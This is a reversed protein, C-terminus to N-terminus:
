KHKKMVSLIYSFVVFINMLLCFNFLLQNSLRETLLQKVTISDTSKFAAILLIIVSIAFILASQVFLDKHDNKTLYTIIFTNVGILFSVSLVGGNVQQIKKLETETTGHYESNDLFNTLYWNTLILFIFGNYRSEETSSAYLITAVIFTFLSLLVVYSPRTYSIYHFTNKSKLNEMDLSISVIAENNNKTGPIVMFYSDELIPTFEGEIYDVWYYTIKNIADPKGMEFFRLLTNPDLAQKIFVFKDAADSYIDKWAVNIYKSTQNAAIKFLDGDGPAKVQGRECVFFHYTHGDAFTVGHNESMYNLWEPYSMKGSSLLEVREILSKKLFAVIETYNEKNYKVQKDLNSLPPPVYILKYLYVYQIFVIVVYLMIIPAYYTPNLLHKHPVLFEKSINKLFTM